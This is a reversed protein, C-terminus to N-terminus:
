FDSQLVMMRGNRKDIADFARQQNHGNDIFIIYKEFQVKNWSLMKETDKISHPFYVKVILRKDIGSLLEYDDIVALVKNCVLRIVYLRQDESRRASKKRERKNKNNTKKNKKM